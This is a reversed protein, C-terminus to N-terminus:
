KKKISEASGGGAARLNKVNHQLKITEMKMKYVLLDVANRCREVIFHFSMIISFRGLRGMEKVASEGFPIKNRGNNLRSM